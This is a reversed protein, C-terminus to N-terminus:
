IINMSEPHITNCQTKIDMLNDTLSTIDSEARLVICNNQSTTKGCDYNADDKDTKNIFTFSLPETLAPNQAGTATFVWSQLGPVVTPKVALQTLVSSSVEFASAEAVQFPTLQPDKKPSEYSSYNGLNM